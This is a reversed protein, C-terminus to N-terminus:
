YKRPAGGRWSPAQKIVQLDCKPAKPKPPKPGKVRPDRMNLNVIAQIFEELLTGVIYENSLPDISTDGGAKRVAVGTNEGLPTGTAWKLIGPWPGLFPGTVNELYRDIFGAGGQVWGPAKKQKCECDEAQLGTPDFFNVPDNLM